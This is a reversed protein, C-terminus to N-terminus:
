RGYKDLRGRQYCDQSCYINKYNLYYSKKLQVKRRYFECTCFSCTVRMYRLHFRCRDSCTKTKPATRKGCQVCYRTSKLPKPARTHLGAKKLVKYIYQRSVDFQTGIEQLTLFPHLNRTQLIDEKKSM